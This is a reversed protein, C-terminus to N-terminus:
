SASLRRLKARYDKAIELIQVSKQSKHPLVPPKPVLTSNVNGVLALAALKKWQNKDDSENASRDQMEHVTPQQSSAQRMDAMDGSM